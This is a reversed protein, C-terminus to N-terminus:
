DSQAVQISHTSWRRAGGFRGVRDFEWGHRFVQKNMPGEFTPDDMGYLSPISGVMFPSMAGNRDNCMTVRQNEWVALLADLGQQGYLPAWVRSDPNYMSMGEPLLKNYYTTTNLIMAPRHLFFTAMGSSDVVTSSRNHPIQQPVPFYRFYHGRSFDVCAFFVMTSLWKDLFYHELSKHSKFLNWGQRYATWATILPKTQVAHTEPRSRIRSCMVDLLWNHYTNRTNLIDEFFYDLIEQILEFPLSKWVPSLQEDM